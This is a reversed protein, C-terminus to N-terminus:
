NGENDVHQHDMLGSIPDRGVATDTILQPDHGSESSGLVQEETLGPFYVCTWQMYPATHMGAVLNYFDELTDAIGAAETIGDSDSGHNFVADPDHAIWHAATAVVVAFHEGKSLLLGLCNRIEGTAKDAYPVTAFGAGNDYAREFAAEIAACFDTTRM